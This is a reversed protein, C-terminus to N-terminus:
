VTADKIRRAFQRCKGRPTVCQVIVQHHGYVVGTIKWGLREPKAKLEDVIKVIQKVQDEDM